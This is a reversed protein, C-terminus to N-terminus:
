AEWFTLSVMKVKGADVVYVVDNITISSEAINTSLIQCSLPAHSPYALTFPFFTFSIAVFLRALEQLPSSSVSRTLLSCKHIYLTCPTGSPLLTLIPSPVSHFIFHPHCECRSSDIFRKDEQICDRLTVIEDYGPLFVLIAGPLLPGVYM